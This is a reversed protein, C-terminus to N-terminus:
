CFALNLCRNLILSWYLMCPGTLASPLFPRVDMRDFVALSQRARTMGVFFARRSEELKAREPWAPWSGVLLGHM